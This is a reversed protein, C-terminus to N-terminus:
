YDPDYHCDSMKRVRRINDDYDRVLIKGDSSWVSKIDVCSKAYKLLQLNHFTLDDNIYINSGKLLKRNRLVESKAHYKTFKIIIQREKGDKMAGVRHARDIHDKNLDLNLNSKCLDVVKQICDEDRSEKIGAIRLNYKRSYQENDNILARYDQLQSELHDIRLKLATTASQVVEQILEKADGSTFADKVAQQIIEKLNQM